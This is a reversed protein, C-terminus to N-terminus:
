VCTCLCVCNGYMWACTHVIMWVCEWVCKVLIRQRSSSLSKGTVWFQARGKHRWQNEQLLLLDPSLSHLHSGRNSFWTVSASVSNIVLINVNRCMCVCVCQWYEPGKIVNCTECSCLSCYNLAHAGAKLVATSVSMLTHTHTHPWPQPQEPVHNPLGHGEGEATGTQQM